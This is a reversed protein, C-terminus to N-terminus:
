FKHHRRTKRSRSRIKSGGRTRGNNVQGPLLFGEPIENMYIMSPMDNKNRGTAYKRQRGVLYPNNSNNGVRANNRPYAWRNRNALNYRNKVRSTTNPAVKYSGYNFPAVNPRNKENVVRVVNVNNNVPSVKKKRSMGMAKIRKRLNAIIGM